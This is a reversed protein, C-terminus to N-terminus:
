PLLGKDKLLKSSEDIWKETKGPIKVKPKFLNMLEVATGVGSQIRPALADFEAAKEDYIGKKILAPLGANIAATNAELQKASAAAQKGAQRQAFETAKNVDIDSDTKAIARKMEKYQLATGVGAAIPDETDGMTGSATSAGAGGTATLIRNLGAAELDAAERQHATDSMYKAFRNQDRADSRRQENLLLNTAINGVGIAGGIEM